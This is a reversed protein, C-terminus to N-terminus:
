LECCKVLFNEAFCSEKEAVANILVFFTLIQHEFTKSTGHDGPGPTMIMKMELIWNTETEM